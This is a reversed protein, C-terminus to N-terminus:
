AGARKKLTLKFEDPRQGLEQILNCTMELHTDADATSEFYAFDVRARGLFPKGNPRKPETNVLYSQKHKIRCGSPTLYNNHILWRIVETRLGVWSDIERDANDPFIIRSPKEGTVTGYHPLPKADSHAPPPRTSPPPPPQHSPPTSPPRIDTVPKAADRLNLEGDYRWLAMLKRCIDITSDGSLSCQIIIKDKLPVRKYVDYVNWVDGDTTVFYPIGERTCYNLAQSAAEDEVKGIGKAEIVIHRKGGHYLTYDPRGDKQTEELKIHAPDTWGLHRLVPDILHYKASSESQTRVADVRAKLEGILAAFERM